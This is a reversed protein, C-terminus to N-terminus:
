RASAVIVGLDDRKTIRFAGTRMQVDRLSRGERSVLAWGTGGRVNIKHFFPSFRSDYDGMGLPHVERLSPIRLSIQGRM